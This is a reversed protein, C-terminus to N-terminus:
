DHLSMIDFPSVRVNSGFAWQGDSLFNPSALVFLSDHPPFSLSIDDPSTSEYDLQGAMVRWWDIEALVQRGKRLTDSARRQKRQAAGVRPYPASRHSFVDPLSRRRSPSPPM